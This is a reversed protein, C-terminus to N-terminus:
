ALSRRLAPMRVGKGVAEEIAAVVWREADQAVPGHFHVEVTTSGSGSGVAQGVTSGGADVAAAALMQKTKGAPIVTGARGPVVLEPGEEGVVYPQGKRVPGGLARFGARISVLRDYAADDLRLSVSASVNRGDLRDLEAQIAQVDASAASKEFTARASPSMADYILAAGTLDKADIKAQIAQFQARTIVDPPVDGYTGILDRVQQETFGSQIAEKILNETRMKHRGAAEEAGMGGAVEAELLALSAETSSVLMERNARGKDTAIDLTTGNEAIAASLSDLASEWGATAAELDMKPGFVEALAATLADAFTGATNLKAIFTDFGPAAAVLESAVEEVAGAVESTGAALAKEDEAAAAAARGSSALNEEYSDLTNNFSEVGGIATIASTDAGRFAEITSRMLDDDGTAKVERLVEDVKDLAISYGEVEVTGQDWTGGGMWNGINSLKDIFGESSDSADRLAEGVDRPGDASRLNNIATELGVADKTADNLAQAMQYVAIAAGVAGLGVAAKGVKTLSTSTGDATTTVQTMKGRLGSMAEGARMLTGVVTTVPGIAAAVGAVVLIFNQTGASLGDWKDLASVLGEGMSTLVPVLKAGIEESVDELALKAAELQGETTAAYAAASGAFQVELEDLIVKQASMVDGSAVFARVQAEQQATLQVGAKRLAGMGRIPDNLSKGLLMNAAPLDMGLKRSMDVATETARDFVDNGEGVSNRVKTFTLLLSAGSKVLDGDVAYKDQMSSALEDMADVSTWATAGTSAISAELQAQAKEAEMFNKVAVTGLAVLPLTVGASMKAGLNQMKAGQADMRKSFTDLGDGAGGLSKRFGSEDGLIKVLISASKGAM